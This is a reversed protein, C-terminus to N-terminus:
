AIEPVEVSSQDEEETVDDYDVYYVDLGAWVGDPDLYHPHMGDHVEGHCNACLLVCKDLERKIRDWSTLRSSVTFEKATVDPHHFHMSVM